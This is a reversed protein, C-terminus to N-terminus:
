GSPPTPLLAAKLDVLACTDNFSQSQESLFNMLAEILFELPAFQIAPVISKLRAQEGPHTCLSILM